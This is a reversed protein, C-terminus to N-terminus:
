STKNDARSHEHKSGKLAVEIGTLENNIRKINFKNTPSYKADHILSILDQVGETLRDVEAQLADEIPRRNWAEIAAARTVGEDNHHENDECYVKWLAPRIGALLNVPKGAKGQCERCKKLTQRM